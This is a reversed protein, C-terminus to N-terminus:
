VVHPFDSFFVGQPDFTFGGNHEDLIGGGCAITNADSEIFALGKRNILSTNLHAHRLIVSVTDASIPARLESFTINHWFALDDRARQNWRVDGSWFMSLVRRLDVRAKFGGPVLRWTGPCWMRFRLEETLISILGRAMISVARPCAPSAAWLLGILQAVEKASVREYSNAAECLERVQTTLRLARSAPLSFTGKRTNILTDLYIFKTSPALRCKNNITLGAAAMEYVLEVAAIMAARASPAVVIVDDIYSSIRM